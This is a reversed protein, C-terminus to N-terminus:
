WGSTVGIFIQKTASKKSVDGLISDIINSAEKCIAKNEDEKSKKNTPHSM